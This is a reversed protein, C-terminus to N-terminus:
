INQIKFHRDVHQKITKVTDKYKLMLGTDKAKFYINSGQQTYSLTYKANTIM